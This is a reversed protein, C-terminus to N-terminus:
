RVIVKKNGVIYLGRDLGNVAEGPLVNQKVLRGDVTYVNVPANEDVTKVAQVGDSYDATVDNVLNKGGETDTLIEYYADANTGTVDVTQPSGTGTSFVLDVYDSKGSMWYSKSFWKKGKITTTTTVADGPWGGAEPAHTGDGGWSWFNVKTWNVADANVYVTIKTKDDNIFTYTNTIVGKVTGGALLGVKLTTTGDIHIKGGSALKTSSATPTSGDLTYVLQAGSTASVATATVDFPETYDGTWKDVFATEASASLFLRYRHGRAVQVGDWGSLTTPDAKQADPGVICYLSCKAGMTRFVSYNYSTSNTFKTAMSENNVGATKRAMIMSKIENKYPKWHTLFVCPTGPMSLLFANAALTDKKIPDQNNGDIRNETDHNEVFTVAYRRYTSNSVLTPVTLNKWGNTNNVADRVAYRFNFDFTGTYRVNDIRARNLFSVLTSAGGDWYEAVSFQVGSNKNYLALKDAGFGKAVDYRFGTYGLDNLLFDCYANISKQVNASKHDLDRMGDWGEGEDNNDSLSYGNSTAWTLTKGGDDDKVIDTSVMQYDVGKYTEKPFDVWNSVNARHNIVVDAIVGLNKEKFTSIMTRLQADTGFASNHNFYYLPDYGMSGTANAARGSQPVWILDYFSALEDAQNTLTAWRTDNFSNWYFGQLMVGGYQSPWGQAVALLPLVALLFSSLLKRM